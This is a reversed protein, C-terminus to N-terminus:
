IKRCTEKVKKNFKIAKNKNKEKRKERNKFNFSNNMYNILKIIEKEEKEM